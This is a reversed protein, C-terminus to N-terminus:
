GGGSRQRPPPVGADSWVQAVAARGLDRHRYWLASVRGLLLGLLVVDVSLGQAPGVGAAPLGRTLWPVALQQLALAALWFVVPAGGGRQIYDRREPDYHVRAVAGQAVGLATSAALLLLPAGVSLGAAFGQRAALGALVAFVVPSLLLAALNLRRTRLQGILALPVFALALLLHAHGRVFDFLTSLTFVREM